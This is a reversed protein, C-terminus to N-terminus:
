CTPILASWYGCNLFLLLASDLEIECKSFLVMLSKRVSILVPVKQVIYSVTLCFGIKLLAQVYVQVRPVM